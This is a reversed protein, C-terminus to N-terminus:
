KPIAAGPLKRAPGIAAPGQRQPYSCSYDGNGRHHKISGSPCACEPVQYTTANHYIHDVLCTGGGGPAAQASGTLALAGLAGLALGFVLGATKAANLQLM